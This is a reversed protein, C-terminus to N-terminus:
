PIYQLQFQRHASVLISLYLCVDKDIGAQSEGEGSLLCM